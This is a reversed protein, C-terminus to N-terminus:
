RRDINGQEKPGGQSIGAPQQRDWPSDRIPLRCSWDPHPICCTPLFDAEANREDEPSGGSIWTKRFLSPYAHVHPLKGAEHSGARVTVSTPHIQRGRPPSQDRSTKTPAYHGAINQNAGRQKEKEEVEEFSRAEVVWSRARILYHSPIMCVPRIVLFLLFLLGGYFTVFRQM